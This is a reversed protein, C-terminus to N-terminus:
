EQEVIEMIEGIYMTHPEDVKYYADIVDKPMHSVDLEQQYIKKCIISVKAEKFLTIEDYDLPTLKAEEDKNSNRGSLTGMAKLAHRYEEKFFSVVFYDNNEMFLHTFRRPKVYITIVNKSWLTGLEGWSITMSNHENFSGATLLAWDDDFLTFPQSMFEKIAIRKM